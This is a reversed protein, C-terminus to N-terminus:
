NIEYECSGFCHFTMGFTPNKTGFDVQTFAPGGGQLVFENTGKKQLYFSITKNPADYELM